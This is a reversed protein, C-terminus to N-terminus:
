HSRWVYASSPLGKGDKYRISDSHATDGIKWKAAIAVAVAAVTCYQPRRTTGNFWRQMTNRSVGSSKEIYLLMTKFPVPTNDAEFQIAGRLLEIVPDRTTFKYTQYKHKAM